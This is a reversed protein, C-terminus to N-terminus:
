NGIYTRVHEIFKDMHEVAKKIFAERIADEKEAKRVAKIYEAHGETIRTDPLRGAEKMKKIYHEM